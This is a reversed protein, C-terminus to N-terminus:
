FSINVGFSFTRPRPYYNVNDVSSTSISKDIGPTALGDISIEPDIGSYGTIVFLNEGTIYCRLKNIGAKKLFSSPFTYGITIGQIRLFSADEIWYSSYTVKDDIGSTLYSDLINYSPARGAYSINMAQANLVKQGFMGYTSINLDFNRYTFDFALGLTLDPQVDGLVEPNGNNALIFNGNEDLGEFRPGYFTGVPYGEKLIQSFVNSLGTLGHLSGSYVVDTQYIENSLKSVKQRNHALTLTGDWSFDKTRYINSNVTLEIGTNSLDGVNALMTPYLYPPMPVDYTYLLDSTKKYYWDITANIKHFLTFDIGINTQATSEWKLDPNPNQTVGYSQKWVGAAADYYAAGGATGMLALSKYEGIGDQNGTIGFGVRLKLSSLYDKISEMFQEDSIKWAASVSPFYGWKNNEGFRTSGDGRLTATFLYKNDFSYNVRGFFSLLRANGKYSYVDGMRFDQGAALNNYKFIDTDFGRREAGSGEYTNTLFSYGLMANFRHKEAFIHEYTLYSEFQTNTYDAITKRGYGKDTLGEFAYSPRYFRGQNSNYEYSVNAIAKLGDIIDVEAKVYGLLRKRSSNDDRNNQLEVPNNNLTGGIQTYEGNQKVPVTPNLTYARDFIGYEIGTWKDTNAHLSFELKLKKNFGYQYATISGGIRQLFSNIIVGQHDMYNISARFGSNETGSSFALNHYQSVATQELEKQWDTDGGFDIASTLGNERVYQRWQNASLLDLNKAVSGIAVYGNYTISGEKKERNTTVMIVGNAGRSGYIATASADKLVDFSLIEGPQITNIDVGPIGDVVFLPSSSATLSTGGRLRVSSGRTPDGSGQIVTLGAIKGQLLQETSSIIGQKFDAASVSSIAGTLDARRVAGYGIAVVTVQELGIADSQLQVIMTPQASLTQTVYGLYSFILQVELEVSLTFKGNNDTTTGQTTSVIVSVGELPTNNEDIVTGNVTIQQQAFASHNIFVITTIILVIYKKFNKFNM